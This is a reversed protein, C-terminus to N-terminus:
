PWQLGRNAMASRYALWSSIKAPTLPAQGKCQNWFPDIVGYIESTSWDNDRAWLAWRILAFQDKSYGLLQSSDPGKGFRWRAQDTSGNRRVRVLWSGSPDHLEKFQRYGVDELWQEVGDDAFYITRDEMWEDSLWWILDERLPESRGLDIESREQTDTLALVPKPGRRRNQIPNERVRRRM